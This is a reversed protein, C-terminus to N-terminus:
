RYWDYGSKPQKYIEIPDSNIVPENSQQQQRRAPISPTMSPASSDDSIRNGNGDLTECALMRITSPVEMPMQSFSAVAGLENLNFHCNLITTKGNEIKEEEYHCADGVRGKVSYNIQTQHEGNETSGPMPINNADLQRQMDDYMDQNPIPANLGPVSMGPPVMDPTLTGPIPGMGKAGKMQKSAEELAKRSDEHGHKRLRSEMEPSIDHQDFDMAQQYKGKAKEEMGAMYNGMKASCSYAQCRSLKESLKECNHEAYAANCLMYISLGAILPVINKM